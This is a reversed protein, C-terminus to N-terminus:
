VERNTPLTLHTYSVSEETVTTPTEASLVVSRPLLEFSNLSRYMSPVAFRSATSMSAPAISPVAIPAEEAEDAVNVVTVALVLTSTVPDAPNIRSFSSVILLEFSPVTAILPSTENPVPEDVPM